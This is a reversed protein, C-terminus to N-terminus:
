ANINHTDGVNTINNAKVYYTTDVVDTDIDLLHHKIIKLKVLFSRTM